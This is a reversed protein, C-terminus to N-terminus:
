SLDATVLGSWRSYALVLKQDAPSVAAPGAPTNRADPALLFAAAAATAGLTAIAAAIGILSGATRRRRALPRHPRARRQARRAIEEWSPPPDLVLPDNLRRTLVEDTTDQMDDEKM